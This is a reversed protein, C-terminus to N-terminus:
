NGEYERMACADDFFCSLTMAIFYRPPPVRFNCIPFDITKSTRFKFRWVVKEKCWTLKPTLVKLFKDFTWSRRWLFYTKNKNLRLCNGFVIEKDERSLILGLSFSILKGTRAEIKRYDSSCFKSTCNFYMRKINRM